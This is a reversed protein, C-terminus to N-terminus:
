RVRHDDDRAAGKEGECAERRAIFHFGRFEFSDGPAARTFFVRSHTSETLVRGNRTPRVVPDVWALTGCSPLDVIGDTSTQTKMRTGRIRHTIVEGADGATVTLIQIDPDYYSLQRWGTFPHYFVATVPGHARLDKIGDITDTIYDDFWRVEKYTSARATKSIPKLFLFVNLLVSVLIVVVRGRASLNRTFAALVLAGAICTAPVISLTHDPDGVHVTAYFLLGPLFWLLLLRRTLPDFINGRKQRILIPVAWIWSLTGLCSWVIAKWMMDLSDGIPAGFLMSTAGMQSHSYGSLMSILQRWGGAAAALSPLWTAVAALFCLLAVAAVTWRVRIRFAAWIIAPGLLVPLDPRFGAALGLALAAAVFWRESGRMCTRWICLAVGTAGAAYCLRVPNTLPALWFAPNFLLLSAAIIGCEPGGIVEGMKWVFVLAVVSVILGAGLFVAEIAPLCLSLLKLLAVFLPYGPPQPQHLAPNFDRVALAFNIEDFTILYRPALACRSVALAGVLLVFWIARAIM